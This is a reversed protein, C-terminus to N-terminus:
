SESNIIDGFNRIYVTAKVQIDSQAFYNKKYDWNTRVQKWLSYHKQKLYSGLGLVDTKMEKHVKRLTDGTMRVIEAELKRQMNTVATKKTFDIREFSEAIAGECIVELTFRIHEKDSTDAHLRRKAGQINFTVLNDEVSIKLMGGDIEGTLFNLGETEEEGLFGAMRGNYGHFVAAGAIKVETDDPTVRPLAFSTRSLQYEQIEGIRVEKLMRANKFTNRSVSDIYLVPLSETKPRVEIVDKAKGKAIMVKIGRRLEPDRLFYDLVNTFALKTKAIEESIILVKLHQYFPTRSTRSSLQRSIEFLTDGTSTLNLHTANVGSQGGSGKGGTIGGPIVFQETVVFRMKGKPKDPAEKDSREETKHSHDADVGVGIVFGRQEIQVQDWCGAAIMATLCVALLKAWRSGM